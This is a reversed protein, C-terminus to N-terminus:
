PIVGKGQAQEWAAEAIVRDKKSQLYAKERTILDNEIVDWDDFSLLGNNYKKRAIEARMTAAQRFSEDVKLKAVAEQFDTFAQALKAATERSTNVRASEAAAHALTASKTGYYDKGGDFLPLSLNLGVSWKDHEDPFFDHDAEGVSGSLALQPFFQSRAVTVAAASAEEQARAGAYDPTNEILDAISPMATPPETEPVGGQIDVSEYVDLGLARAFQAKAVHLANAAQLDDYKAQNLYAQSLLVSGKNERGSQFRMQVLRLNAQRRQIIQATLNQSEKAYLLSAFANKLDYSLRSKVGRLTAQANRTNAAAQQVKGHDQLGAFLNQSASLSAGYSGDANPSGKESKDYSLKASIQPLFGSRASGELVRTSEFTAVAAKLDANNRLLQDVCM